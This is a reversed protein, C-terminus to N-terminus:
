LRCVLYMPSQLESTHEESRRRPVSRITLINQTIDDGVTGDGRTAAYRVEGNEYLVSVAVGDVKPEIVVPIKEHPLLRTIRAYFETLEEVSYTNDLSLMPVRHPVQAFQKLPQGGVRRTASDEPAFQPYKKELEALERYLQDYERDSITPAAEEYYRRNHKTIERRLAEIRARAEAETM